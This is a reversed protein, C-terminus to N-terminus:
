RWEHKPYRRQLEQKVRPYHDRWFGALDQTIQVPRRNPALIQVSLTVRNMAIKPAETLGYLDQITAAVSPPADPSYQIRASRGNPLRLREPAHQDLLLRQEPTLWELVVPKVPREKIEKYSMAGDCIQVILFKRDEATLIPIGLEPCWAALCNVRAIWQEVSEDWQKLTLEGSLVREALLRAAAERPPQDSRVAKLVLDRFMRRTEAFVRKAAPDWVAVTETRVTGPFLEDLWEPEVATALSLHVEIERGEIETIDAAVFLPHNQVVSDRSLTGRRNHVLRCRLTGRDIRAALQDAFGTLVCKRVAADDAAEGDVDLGQARALRTFMEFLPAVQRATQAHIGVRRCAEVSFGNQKAYSWARMLPFFDSTDRDGFLEDRREVTERDAQRVRLDRGQTLAAILAVQRAGGFSEAAVLMRAWRPHVPFALMRRGLETIEGTQEDAAGLDRLLREARALSQEDPAELWPFARLDRYGAAKLTLAIEALDLRRIEPTEQAPRARHELESWLRICVGPATRGARGARQDASARSISEILLTNIGRHPDFRPIRALGSDIVLRVGDITISTEAVNTAVVVKPASQRAVAQDQQDAPLEGHLPLLVRGKSAPSERLATLTRQIEYAGPMFILADGEFGNQVAENFATAAQDWIPTEERPRAPRPAPRYWIEVPFTRGASELVDCPRLYDEVLALDLTASMVLIALDPRRTRQLERARALTVDGYLHREHFEDFILCSIGPLDPEDIMQRLLIGETVYRIRTARSCVSEFRVQYGVERGLPVGLEEAVRAALMRAAIRRPQLVVAQGDGLLGNRLLMQPIQTSKGSGTPARVLVRRNRTYVAVLAPEIEYIPLREKM